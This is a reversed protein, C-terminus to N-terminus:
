EKAAKDYYWFWIWELHEQGKMLKMEEKKLRDIINDLEAILQKHKDILKQLIKMREENSLEEKAFKKGTEKVEEELQKIKEEINMVM